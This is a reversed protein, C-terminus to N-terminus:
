CVLVSHIIIRMHDIYLVFLCPNSIEAVFCCLVDLQEMPRHFVCLGEYLKRVVMFEVYVKVCFNDIPVM